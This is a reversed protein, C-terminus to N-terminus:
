QQLRNPVPTWQGSQASALMTEMIEQVRYGHAFDTDPQKGEVIANIFTGAQLVQTEYYATGLGPIPWFLDGSPQAPGCMIVRYGQVDNRDAASYYHLENRREWRFALAGKSGSIEFSLDNKHGWAFRSAELTGLAGNAFRILSIAVDDVDVPIMENSGARARVDGTGKSEAAFNAAASRPRQTVITKAAASVSEVEGVLFLAYDLAHSGIDGLAGSGAEKAGFRWSWPTGDPMAWDQLYLARFSHIEGIAGEDILKKAQLVAPCRRYNFGVMHTGQSRRSQEAMERADAASLALPKECLVHKGQSMAFEAIPRHSDNPTVINVVDIDPRAVVKKWDVAGEDYGFQHAGRLALDETVDVVVKRRIAPLDPFFSPLTAMALSHLRGMMGTGILAVNLAAM